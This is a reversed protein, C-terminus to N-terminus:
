SKWSVSIKPPGEELNCMMITMLGNELVHAATECGSGCLDAYAVKKPGLIVLSDGPAKPSINIHHDPDLPATAVFFVKQKAVFETEASGIEELVKGM